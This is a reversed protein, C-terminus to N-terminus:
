RPPELSIVRAGARAMRDVVEPHSTFVFLQRDGAVRALLEIGRERRSPDWNVLTEDLFLPLREGERDLHDVAALRFHSDRTCGLYPEPGDYSFGPREKHIIRTGEGVFETWVPHYASGLYAAYPGARFPQDSRKSSFPFPLAVNQLFEGHAAGRQQRDAYEM